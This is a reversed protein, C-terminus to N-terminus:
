LDELPLETSPFNGTDLGEKISAKAIEDVMDNHEQEITKKRGEEKKVHAKVWVYDTGVANDDKLKKMQVLADAQSQNEKLRM